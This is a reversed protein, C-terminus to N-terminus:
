MVSSKKARGGEVFFDSLAVSTLKSTPKIRKGPHVLWRCEVAKAESEIISYFDFNPTIGVRFPEFIM